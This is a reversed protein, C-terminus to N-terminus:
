GTPLSAPWTTSASWPTHWCRARWGAAGATCRRTWPWNRTHQCRARAGRAGPEPPALPGVPVAQAGATGIVAPVEIVADDDLFPLTGRNRLNVVQVDGAGTTLSALLAVAAESYFAGGRQSLMEPKHT